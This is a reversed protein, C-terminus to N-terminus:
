APCHKWLSIEAMLGWTFQSLWELVVGIPRIYLGSATRKPRTGRGYDDNEEPLGGKGIEIM